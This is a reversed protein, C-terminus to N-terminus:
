HLFHTEAPSLTARFQGHYLMPFRSPPLVTTFLQSPFYMAYKPKTKIQFKFNLPREPYGLPNFRLYGPKQARSDTFPFNPCPLILIGEIIIPFVYVLSSVICVNCSANRTLLYKKKNPNPTM